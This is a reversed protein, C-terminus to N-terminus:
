DERLQNSPNAGLLKPRLTKFYIELYRAAMARTRAQAVRIVRTPLCGFSELHVPDQKELNFYINFQELYLM